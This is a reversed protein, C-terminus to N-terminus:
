LFCPYWSPYGLQHRDVLRLPRWLTHPAEPFVPDAPVPSHLDCRDLRSEDSKWSEEDEISDQLKAAVNDCDSCIM